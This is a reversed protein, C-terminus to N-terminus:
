TLLQTLLSVGDVVQKRNLSLDPVRWYYDPWGRIAERDKLRSTSIGRTHWGTPQLDIDTSRQVMGLGKAYSFGRVDSVGQPPFVGRLFNGVPLFWDVVFSFPILEWGTAIPNTIGLRDLTFLLPNEVIFDLRGRVEVHGYVVTQVRYNPALTTNIVADYFERDVAHVTHVVVFADTNANALAEMAGYVDQMIPRVGYNWGLWADASRKAADSPTFPDSPRKRLHRKLRGGDKQRRVVELATKFDFKRVSRYMKAVSECAGAFMSATERYEGLSVGLDIPYDRVKATLKNRVSGHLDALTRAAPAEGGVQDNFQGTLPYEWFEPFGAADRETAPGNYTERLPSKGDWRIFRYPNSPLFTGSQEAREKVSHFGPTNM